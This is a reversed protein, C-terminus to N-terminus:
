HPINYESCSSVQWRKIQREDILCHRYSHMQLLDMLIWCYLLCRPLPLPMLSCLRVPRVAKLSSFVEEAEGGAALVMGAALM